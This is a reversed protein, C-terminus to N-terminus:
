VMRKRYCYETGNLEQLDLLGTLREGSDVVDDSLHRGGPLMVWPPRIPVPDFWVPLHQDEAGIELMPLANVRLHWFNEPTQEQSAWSADSVLRFALV